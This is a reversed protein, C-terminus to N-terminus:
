FDFPIVVTVSPQPRYIPAPVYVVPPPAYAYLPAYVPARYAHRSHWKHHKAHGPPSYHYGGQWGRHRDNDAFAPAAAAGMVALAVALGAAGWRVLTRRSSANPTRVTNM